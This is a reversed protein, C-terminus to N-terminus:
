ECSPVIDINLISGLQVEFEGDVTVEEANIFLACNNSVVINSTAPITVQKAIYAKNTTFYTINLSQTKYKCNRYYLKTGDICNHMTAIQLPSLATMSATYDMLNNSSM